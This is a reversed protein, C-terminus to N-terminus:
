APRREMRALRGCSRSKGCSSDGSATKKSKIIASDAQLLQLFKILDTISCYDTTNLM